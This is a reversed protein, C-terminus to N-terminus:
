RARLRVGGSGTDIRIRGDGDGLRGRMYNRRKEILQIPLDTTIGGSGVDIEIEAGLASPVGVTVSGSGTDLLANRVDGVLDLTIAGSGTDLNLDRANVRDARISGSGTDIRLAPAVIDAVTVSGSGTDIDLGLANVDNVVVSGSGTDIRVAGGRADAVDIRGSGTDLLLHGEVATVSIRGSGTNAYVSGKVSNVEVGGTRSDIRLEGAINSATVTGAGVNIAVTKGAPVIVRLDAWAETGGGNGSIRLRQSRSLRITSSKRYGEEDLSARLSGLGFLGDGDINMETRSFRGLRPYVIDNSPYTVVLANWGDHTRPTFRLDAADAGGPTVEVVVASGSGSQLRVEGAPNFIAVRDGTLEYRNAQGAAPATAISATVIALLLGRRM